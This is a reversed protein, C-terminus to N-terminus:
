WNCSSEKSCNLGVVPEGAASAKNCFPMRLGVLLRLLVGSLREGHILGKADGVIALPAVMRTAKGGRAGGEKGRSQEMFGSQTGHVAATISLRGVWSRSGATVTKCLKYMPPAAAALSPFWRESKFFFTHYQLQQKNDAAKSESGSM